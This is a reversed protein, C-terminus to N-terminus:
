GNLGEPLARLVLGNVREDGRKLIMRDIMNETGGGQSFTQTGLGNQRIRSESHLLHLSL